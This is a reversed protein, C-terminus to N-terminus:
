AHGLSQAVASFREVAQAPFATVRGLPKRGFWSLTPCGKARAITVGPKKPASAIPLM